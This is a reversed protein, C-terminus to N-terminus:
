EDVDRLTGTKRDVYMLRLYGVSGGDFFVVVPDGDKVHPAANWEIMERVDQLGFRAAIGVMGERFTIRKYEWPHEHDENGTEDGFMKVTTREYADPYRATPAAVVMKAGGYCNKYFDDDNLPRTIDITIVPVQQVNITNAITHRDTLFKM